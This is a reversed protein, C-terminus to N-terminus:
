PSSSGRWPARPPGRLTGLTTPTAPASRGSLTTPLLRSVNSPSRLSRTPADVCLGCGRPSCAVTRNLLYVRASRKSALLVLIPLVAAPSRASFDGVCPRRLHSPSPATDAAAFATTASVQFPNDFRAPNDLVTVNTVSVCARRPQSHVPPPSLVRRPGARALAPPALALRAHRRGDSTLWRVHRQSARASLACSHFPALVGTDPARRSRRANRSSTDHVKTATLDERGQHRCGRRCGLPLGEQIRVRCEESAFFIQVVDHVRSSRPCPAPKPM